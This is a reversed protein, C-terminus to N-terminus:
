TNKTINEGLFQSAFRRCLERLASNRTERLHFHKMRYDPHQHQTPDIYGAYVKRIRTGNILDTCSEGHREDLDTACPSCTTILISGPQPEGYLARYEDLATREGHSRTGDPKLYNVGFVKRDDMDVICSGVWGFRHRDEQKADLVMDCCEALLRDLKDTDHIQFHSRSM